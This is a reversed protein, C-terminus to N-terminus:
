VFYFSVCLINVVINKNVLKQKGVVSKPYAIIDYYDLIRNSYIVCISCM